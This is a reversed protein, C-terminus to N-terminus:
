QRSLCGRGPVISGRFGEPRVHFLPGRSRDGPRCRHLNLREEHHASQPNRWCSRLDDTLNRQPLGHQCQGAHHQLRNSRLRPHLPGRLTRPKPFHDRNRGLHSGAMQRHRQATATRTLSRSPISRQGHVTSRLRSAQSPPALCPLNFNRFEAGQAVLAPLIVLLCAIRHATLRRALSM